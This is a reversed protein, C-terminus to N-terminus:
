RQCRGVFRKVLPECLRNDCPDVGAIIAGTVLVQASGLGFVLRRMVRLRDFSLELGIAFMLLVIGVEGYVTVTSPNSITIWRLWPIEGALGGLGHPGVLMGVLIFGVVPSIRLSAFAPIVIGVAGLIVIADSFASTPAIEVAM